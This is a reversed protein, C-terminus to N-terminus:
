CVGAQQLACCTLCAEPVPYHHNEAFAIKSVVEFNSIEKIVSCM